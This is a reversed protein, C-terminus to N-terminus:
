ELMEWLACEIFSWETDLNFEQDELSEISNFTVMNTSTNLDVRMICEDKNYWELCIESDDVWPAMHPLPIGIHYADYIKYKINEFNEKKFTCGQVGDYWGSELACIKNIQEEFMEKTIM